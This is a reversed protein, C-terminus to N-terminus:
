IKKVLDQVNNANAVAGAQKRVYVEGTLPFSTESGCAWFITIGYKGPKSPIYQRFPRRGRTVVLQEDVTIDSGPKYFHILSAQFMEWVDRIPALKDTVRREERTSLNDFRCFRILEKFTNLSM